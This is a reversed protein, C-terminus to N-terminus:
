FANIKEVIYNIEDESLGEFLPLSLVTNAYEEAVPFDGAKYGLYQYAKALHPPIPYHIESNIGAELLYEKLKDRLGTRIVFLHWVSTVKDAVKPLIIKENEIEQLYRNVIKLRNKNSEDLKSLKIRLIAAQLEDLRSNYGVVENYYRKRSGYNRLMRYNENKDSDQCVIAGGDGFCGLNKSPYFSFCGVGFSGVKQGMYEAGHAQACDEVVLLNYQKALKIITDMRSAQGYLHTVLIAKTNKTIKEEIKDVDINYYEDPEVFIPTALNKTIGMVSAIYTNAQVIVEDGCNINQERFALELADLGSAVGVAHNATLYRAFEKEFNSVEEGLIYWGKELVAGIKEIYETKNKLYDNKLVNFPIQM